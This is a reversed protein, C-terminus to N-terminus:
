GELVKWLRLQGDVIRYVGYRRLTTDGDRNISYTGLVSHRDRTDFIAALVKSRRAPETGNNTARAIASLMLSMAEYGYISDPQPPGFRKRYAAYFARAAPSRASPGLPPGTILMRRDLSTPIGGQDPDTYTTEALGASGVIMARPMAAAVQRSLLVANDETIASLVVCDAGTHAVAAALSRYDTAAPEFSQVGVVPLGAAKAAVQFSSAADAGDVEGDDLVYTKRCGLSRLLQVQAGAQMADNPAVRAFTRVGTPYYKDPEGPAAGPAASTLGVATSTPSIQPIGARNLLPISVASAGSNFEGIYGITTKDQVAEHADLTTQGPDWGGRQPTSDDLERLAIRYRGVRGHAQALALEAGSVVGYASVYSAGNLPVSLYITLTKGPVRNEDRPQGGCAAPGVLAAVLIAAISGKRLAASSPPSM